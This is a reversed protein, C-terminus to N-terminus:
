KRIKISAVGALLSHEVCPFKFFAEEAEGAPPTVLYHVLVDFIAFFTSIVPLLYLVLCALVLLSSPIGLMFRHLDDLRHLGMLDHTVGFWSSANGVYPTHAAEKELEVASTFLSYSMPVM